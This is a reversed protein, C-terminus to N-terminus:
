LWEPQAPRAERVDGQEQIYARVLPEFLMALNAREREETGQQTSSRNDSNSAERQSNHRNKVEEIHRIHVANAKSRAAVLAAENVLNAIEAGNWGELDKAIRRLDWDEDTSTTIKRLHVELCGQRAELDPLPVHIIRDIRGPRILASDLAQLRNTAGIFCLAVDSNDRMGDLECLLQNLTQCYEHNSNEGSDRKQGLADLEDIFIICPAQARAKEFFERVRSAGQGVFIEVFSSASQYIFPVKSEGAVAKALLTKGTGSPGALLVGRPPRAGLADFSLPDELFQIIERLEHKTEEMGAVDSFSVTTTAPQEVMNPEARKRWLFWTAACSAAISLLDILRDVIFSQMLSVDQIAEVSCNAKAVEDWVHQFSGPVLLSKCEGISPMFYHVAGFPPAESYKVSKVANEKVLNLFMSLPVTAITIRKALTNELENAKSILYFTAACGASIGLIRAFDVEWDRKHNNWRFGFANLLWNM